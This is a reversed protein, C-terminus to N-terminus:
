TQQAPDLDQEHDICTPRQTNCLSLQAHSGTHLTHGISQWSQSLLEQNEEALTNQAAFDATHAQWASLYPEKNFAKLSHVYTDREAGHVVMGATHETCRRKLHQAHRNGM